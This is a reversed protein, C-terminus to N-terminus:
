KYINRIISGTIPEIYLDYDVIYIWEHPRYEKPMYGNFTTINNHSTKYIYYEKDKVYGAVFLVNYDKLREKLEMSFHQCNFNNLDYKNLSVVYSHHLIDIKKYPNLLIM